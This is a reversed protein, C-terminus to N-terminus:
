RPLEEQERVKLWRWRGGEPPPQPKTSGSGAGYSGRGRDQWQVLRGETGYVERPLTEHPLPGFEERTEREFDDRIRQVRRREEMKGLGSPIAPLRKKEEVLAEYAAVREADGPRPPRAYLKGGNRGSRRPNRVYLPTGEPGVATLEFLDPPGVAGPVIVVPDADTEIGAEEVARRIMYGKSGAEMSRDILRLADQLRAVEALKAYYPRELEEAEARAADLQQRGRERAEALEELTPMSDM